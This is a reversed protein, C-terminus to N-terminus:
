KALCLRRARDRLLVKEAELRLANEDPKRGRVEAELAKVQDRTARLEKRLAEIELRLAELDDPAPRAKQAGFAPPQQAPRLPEAAGARYTLGVAGVGFLAALGVAWAAVKLKSLFM